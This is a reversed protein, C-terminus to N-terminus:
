YCYIYSQDICKASKNNGVGNVPGTLGAAQAQSKRQDIAWQDVNCGVRKCDKCHYDYKRNNRSPATLLKNTIRLYVKKQKLFIKVLTVGNEIGHSMEM